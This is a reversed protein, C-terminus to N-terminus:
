RLNQKSKPYNKISLIKLKKSFIEIVIVSYGHGSCTISKVYKRDLNVIFINSTQEGSEYSANTHWKGYSFSFHWMYLIIFGFILYLKTLSLNTSLIKFYDNM